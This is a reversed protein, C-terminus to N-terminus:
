DLPPFPGSAARRQAEKLAKRQKWRLRQVKTVLYLVAIFNAYPMFAVVLHLLVAVWRVSEHVRQLRLDPMGPLNGLYRNPLIWVLLPYVLLSVLYVGFFLEFSM